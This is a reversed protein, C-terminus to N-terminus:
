RDRGLKLNYLETQTSSILDSSPKWGFAEFFEVLVSHSIDKPDGLLLEKTLLSRDVSINESNTVMPSFFDMRMPDEVWLRRGRSNGLSIQITAGEKYLGAARLRHAFETVETISYIFSGVALVPENPVNGEKSLDERLSKYHLFQGSKYMRWFEVHNYWDCWEHAYESYKEHGGHEDNRPAIHPFDWGRLSVSANKVIERATTVTLSEPIVAPRIVVRLFGVSKIKELLAEFM